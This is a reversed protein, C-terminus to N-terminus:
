GQGPSDTAVWQARRGAAAPKADNSTPRAALRFRQVVRRKAPEHSPVTHKLKLLYEVDRQTLPKKGNGGAVPQIQGAQESWTHGKYHYSGYKVLHKLYGPEAPPSDDDLP